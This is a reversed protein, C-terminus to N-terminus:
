LSRQFYLAGPTPCSDYPDTNKFGLSRYLAVAGTMTPLTDLCMRQYGMKRAEELVPEAGGENQAADVLAEAYRRALAMTEDPAVSGEAPAASKADTM